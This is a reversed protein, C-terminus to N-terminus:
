FTGIQDALSLSVKLNGKEKCEEYCEPCQKKCFFHINVSDSLNRFMKRFLHLSQPLLNNAPLIASLLTLYDEMACATLSHRLSHSLILVICQAVTIESGPYFPAGFCEFESTHFNDGFVM